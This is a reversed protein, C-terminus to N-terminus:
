RMVARDRLPTKDGTNVCQAMGLLPEPSSRGTAATPATSVRGGCTWGGSRGTAAPPRGRPASGIPASWPATWPSTRIAQPAPPWCRAACGPHPRPWPTSARTCTGTPRRAASPTTPPWSPWGPATSFDACSWCRRGTVAWRGGGVERAEAVASPPWCAPCSPWPPSGSRSCSPTVSLIPCLLVETRSSMQPVDDTRISM